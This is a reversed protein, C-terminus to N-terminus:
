DAGAGAAGAQAVPEIPRKDVEVVLVHGQDTKRPRGNLPQNSVLPPHAPLKWVYRGVVGVEGEIVPEGQALLLCLLDGLELVQDVVRGVHEPLPRALHPRLQFVAQAFCRAPDGESELISSDVVGVGHRRWIWEDRRVEAKQEVSRWLRLLVDVADHALVFVWVSDWGDTGQQVVALTRRQYDAQGRCTIRGLTRSGRKM